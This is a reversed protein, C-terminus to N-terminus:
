IILNDISYKIDRKLLIPLRCYEFFFKLFMKNGHFIILKRVKNAIKSTKCFALLRYLNINDIEAATVFDPLTYLKTDEETKQNNTVSKYM